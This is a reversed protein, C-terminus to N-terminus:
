RRRNPQHWATPRIGIQITEELLDEDVRVTIRLSRRRELAREVFGTQRDRRLRQPHRRRQDRDSEVAIFTATQLALDHEVSRPMPHVQEIDLDGVAFM